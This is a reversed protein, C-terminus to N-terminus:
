LKGFVTNLVYVKVEKSNGNESKFCLFFIQGGQTQELVLTGAQATGAVQPVIVSGSVGLPCFLTELSGVLTLNRVSPAIIKHEVWFLNKYCFLKPFCQLDHEKLLELAPETNCSRLFRTVLYFLSAVTSLGLWKEWNIQDCREKHFVPNECNVSLFPPSPFSYKILM